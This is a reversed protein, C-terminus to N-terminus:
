THRAERPQSRQPPKMPKGTEISGLSLMRERAWHRHQGIAQIFETALGKLDNNSGVLVGADSMQDEGNSGDSTGVSLGALRLIEVGAGNAAVTKCHKYAESVFEFVEPVAKLANVSTEGGPVYVADFLVSAGTLFSFDANVIQGGESLLTGLHPAVTCVKAGATMLSKQMELVDADDFGDAVLFAVKRTKITRKQFNPNSVMSLTPSATFETKVRKPQFKRPDADAPFSMNLPKELKVPVALGLGEAVRNALTKDVQALLFLMRERIPPTEVKGLEFRLARVIHDQEVETQSNYFLTAQSFHDFFSPSRERVKAASIREAYSAFGSMDMGAQFPCGGRLSNPEYSVQGRNITQRMYGDRQNNHVPAIPRNIPIEHFNPGGLRILQTDLYSFL